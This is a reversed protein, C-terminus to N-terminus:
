LDLRKSTASSKFLHIVSHKNDLVYCSINNHIISTKPCNIEM